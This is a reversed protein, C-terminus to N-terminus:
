FRALDAPAVPSRGTTRQYRRVIGRRRTSRVDVGVSVSAASRHQPPPFVREVDHLLDRRDIGPQALVWDVGPDLSLLVMALHEPRHQRERRALALRLSAEYGAHADLGLPPKWSACRRHSSSAGLPLLPQRGVLRDLFRMDGVRLLGDLDVGVSALLWRDAVAGAGLPAAASATDELVQRTAGHRAFIAALENDGGALGILLHEAGVRPHGLRRASTTALQFVQALSPDDRKFM